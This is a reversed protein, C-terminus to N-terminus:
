SLVMAILLPHYLTIGRLNNKSMSGLEEASTVREKRPHKRPISTSSYNLENVFNIFPIQEENGAM